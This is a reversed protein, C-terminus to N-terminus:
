LPALVRAATGSGALNDQVPRNESIAVGEADATSAERFGLLARIEARQRKLTRDDSGPLAAGADPVPVGLRRALEAVASKDM